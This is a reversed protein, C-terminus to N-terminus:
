VARVRDDVSGSMPVQSITLLLVGQHERGLVVLEIDDLRHDYALGVQIRLADIADRCQVEGRTFSVGFNHPGELALPSGGQARCAPDIRM